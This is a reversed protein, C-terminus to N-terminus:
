ITIGTKITKLCNSIYITKNSKNETSVNGSESKEDNQPLITKTRKLFVTLM